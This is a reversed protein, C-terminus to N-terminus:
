KDEELRKMLEMLQRQYEGSLKAPNLPLNNPVGPLPAPEPAPPAKGAEPLEIGKLDIKKGKRLVVLDVKAGAKVERVLRALDGTDGGVPKGAFEVVIDNAKLGAKEAVSGPLISAVVVGTNPDLGLQEAAVAPVREMTIGLRPRPQDGGAGLLNPILPAGAGPTLRQPTTTSLSKRSM